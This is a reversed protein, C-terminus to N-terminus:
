QRDRYALMSLSAMYQLNFHITRLLSLDRFLAWNRSQSRADLRFSTLDIMVLRTREHKSVYLSVFGPKRYMSDRYAM